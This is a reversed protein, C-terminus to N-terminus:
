TSSGEQLERVREVVAQLAERQEPTLDHSELADLALGEAEHRGEALMRAELWGPDELMAVDVMLRLAGSLTLDHVDAYHELYDRQVPGLRVQSVYSLAPRNAHPM